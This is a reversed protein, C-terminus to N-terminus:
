KSTPFAEYFITQEIDNRLFFSIKTKAYDSVKAALKIEMYNQYERCASPDITTAITKGKESQLTWIGGLQHARFIEKVKITDTSSLILYAKITKPNVQVRYTSPCIFFERNADFWYVNTFDIPISYSKLQNSFTVLEQLADWKKKTKRSQVNLAKILEHMEVIRNSFEPVGKTWLYAHIQKNTLLEVPDTFLYFLGHCYQIYQQINEEKQSLYVAVPLYKYFDNLTKRNEEKKLYEGYKSDQSTYLDINILTTNIDEHNGRILYVQEPNLLKFSVLLELVKLSNTGRDVYDGLFIIHKRPLCVFQKDLFGRKQLAKLTLELRLDQGHIDGIVAVSTGPDLDHKEFVGAMSEINEPQSPYTKCYQLMKEELHITSRQKWEEDSLNMLINMETNPTEQPANSSIEAINNALNIEINKLSITSPPLEFDENLSEEQKCCSLIEQALLSIFNSFYNYAEWSFNTIRQYFPIALPRNLFPQEIISQIPSLELDQKKIPSRQFDHENMPSLELDYEYKIPISEFRKDPELLKDSIANLNSVNM